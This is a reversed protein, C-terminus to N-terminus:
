PRAFAAPEFVRNKPPPTPPTPASHRAAGPRAQRGGPRTQRLLPGAPPRPHCPAEGARSAPRQHPRVSRRRPSEKRPEPSKQPRPPSEQQKTSPPTGAEPEGPASAIPLKEAIALIAQIILNILEILVAALRGGGGNAAIGQSLKEFGEALREKAAQPLPATPNM